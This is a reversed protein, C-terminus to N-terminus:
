RWEVVDSVPARTTRFSNAPHTEDRYGLAIGCVIDRDDAIEYRARLFPSFGAVSAMAIGGLGRAELGLLVATVFAGCDLLGYPGLAKPSTVLLFNPAGFLRFNEMMQRASGARDGKAVGVADYLQWGCTSRREKYAGDYRAPFPIDSDHPSRGAHDFLAARLRATEEASCAIVQWPQANCWSPVHQADALVSTILDPAVLMDTFARCSARSQLLHSLTDSRSM